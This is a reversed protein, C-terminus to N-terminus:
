VGPEGANFMGNQNLDNWVLDGLSAVAGPSCPGPSLVTINKSCSANQADQVSVSIDLGNQYVIPPSTNGCSFQGAPFPGLTVPTGYATPGIQFVGLCAHNFSGTWQSSGGSGTVTLVFTYTDDTTASTGKGDCLINTVVPNITCAPPTQGRFGADVCLNTAGDALTFCSTFGFQDADSDKCDDTGADKTTSFLGGPNAFKVRYQGGQLNQFLYAGSANTTTFNVFAGNCRELIVYVNPIGPEGADQIGNANDDRWVFDGIKATLGAVCNEVNVMITKTKRCEICPCDSGVDGSGGSASGSGSGSG